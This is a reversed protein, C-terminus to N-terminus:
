TTSPTRAQTFRRRAMGFVGVLGTGLLILSSPEPTPAVNSITLVDGRFNDGGLLNYTGTIFTPQKAIVSYMQGRYFSWDFYSDSFGGGALSGYFTFLDVVTSGDPKTVVTSPVSFRLPVLIPLTTITPSAPLTWTYNGGSTTLTFYDTPIPNAHAAAPIAFAAILTFAALSFRM